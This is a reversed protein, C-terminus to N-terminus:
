TVSRRMNAPKRTLAISHGPFSSNTGTRGGYAIAYLKGNPNAALTRFELALAKTGIRNVTMTELNLTGLYYTSFASNESNTLDSYICYVVDDSPDYTLDVFNLNRSPPYVQTDLLEWTNIDWKRVVVEMTESGYEGGINGPDDDNNAERGYFTYFYNDVRIAGQGGYIAANTIDINSSTYTMMSTESDYERSIDYAWTQKKDTFNYMGILWTTWERNDNNQYWFGNIVNGHFTVNQATAGTLTLLFISSLLLKKM